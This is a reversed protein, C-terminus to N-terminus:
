ECMYCKGGCSPCRLRKYGVCAPCTVALTHKGDPSSRAVAGRGECEGCPVFGSSGCVDCNELAPSGEHMLETASAGDTSSLWSDDGDGDSSPILAEDGGVGTGIERTRAQGIEAETVTGNNGEGEAAGGGGDAAVSVAARRGWRSVDVRVFVPGDSLASSGSNSGGGGDTDGGAVEHVTAAQALRRFVPTLYACKRCWSSHYMVVIPGQEERRASVIRRLEDRSSIEIINNENAILDVAIGGSSDAANRLNGKLIEAVGGGDGGGGGGDGGGDGGVVDEKVAPGAQPRQSPIRGAGGWLAGLMSQLTAGCSKSNGGGVVDQRLRGADGAFFAFTPLKGVDLDVAEEKGPRDVSADSSPEPEEPAPQSSVNGDTARGAVERWANADFSGSLFDLNASIGHRPNVAARGRRPLPPPPYTPPLPPSLFGAVAALFM